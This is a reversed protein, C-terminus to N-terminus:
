SYRKYVQLVVWYVVIVAFAINIASYDHFKQMYIPFGIWFVIAAAAASIALLKKGELEM